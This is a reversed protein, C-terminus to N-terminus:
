CWKMVLGAWTLGAGFGSLVVNDGRKIYNQRVAEDLALPISAASTNGYKHLNVFVKEKELGLRKASSDIIRTNAQHPIFFDIDGLELGAREIANIATNGMAKVAFKYVEKGDMHVFPLGQEITKDNVPIACGSAPINLYIGGNGDAGMDAGLIGYGDECASLVAAGAADGFLICTNRDKWNIVRSLVEAGIVLVKNYMGTSIFNSATILGYVFGSCGAYLYFAAARTAGLNAQVMCAASPIVMDPTLTALIILDIEEVSVGAAKLAREAATTAMHSTNLGEEAIRREKIGTRETIWEDSTDVIKELDKNTLVKEPVCSGTGIIGVPRNTMAM